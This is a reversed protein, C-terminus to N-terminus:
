DFPDEEARTPSSKVMQFIYNERKADGSCIQSSSPAPTNNAKCTDRTMVNMTTDFVLNDIANMLKLRDARDLQMLKETLLKGYLEAESIEVDCRSIRPKTKSFDREKKGLTPM